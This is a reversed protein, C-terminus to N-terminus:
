PATVNRRKQMRFGTDREIVYDKPIEFVDDDVKEETIDTMEGKAFLKGNMKTEFKVPIKGAVPRMMGFIEDLGGGGASGRGLMADRVVDFAKIKDNQSLWLTTEFPGRQAHYEEAEIDHITEKRGTPQPLMAAFSDLMSEHARLSDDVTGRMSDLSRLDMVRAVKNPLLTTMTRANRDIISRMSILGGLMSIDYAVKNERVYMKLQLNALAGLNLGPAEEGGGNSGAKGQMLDGIGPVQITETITGEFGKAPM